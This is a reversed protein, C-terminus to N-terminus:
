YSILIVFLATCLNSEGFFKIFIIIIVLWKQVRTLLIAIVVSKMVELSMCVLPIM